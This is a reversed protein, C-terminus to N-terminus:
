LTDATARERCRANNDFFFKNDTMCEQNFKMKYAKWNFPKDAKINITM